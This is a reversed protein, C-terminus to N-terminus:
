QSGGFHITHSDYDIDEITELISQRIAQYAAVLKESEEDIDVQIPSEFKKLEYKDDPIAPPAKGDAKQVPVAYIHFPSDAKLYKYGIGGKHKIYNAWKRIEEIAGSCKTLHKRCETEGRNKLEAVVFEFNCNELIKKTSWTEDFPVEDRDKVSTYLKKGWYISQLVQDFANSFWTAATGFYTCRIWFQSIYGNSWSISRDADMLMKSKMTFFRALQLCNIAEETFHAAANIDKDTSPFGIRFRVFEMSDSVATHEQAYEKYLFEKGRYSITCGDKLEEWLGSHLESFQDIAQFGEAGFKIKFFDKCEPESKASFTLNM